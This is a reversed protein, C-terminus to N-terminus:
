VQDSHLWNLEGLKQKLSASFKVIRAHTWANEIMIARM